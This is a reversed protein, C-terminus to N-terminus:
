IWLYKIAIFQWYFDLANKTKSSSSEKFIEEPPFVICERDLIYVERYTQLLESKDYWKGVNKYM